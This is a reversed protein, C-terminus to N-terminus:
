NGFIQEAGASRGHSCHKHEGLAFVPFREKERNVDIRIDTSVSNTAGGCVPILAGRPVVSEQLPQFWSAAMRISM